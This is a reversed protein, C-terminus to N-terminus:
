AVPEDGNAFGVLIRDEADARDPYFWVVAADGVRPL